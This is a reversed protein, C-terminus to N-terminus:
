RRRPLLPQSQRVPQNTPTNISAGRHMALEDASNVTLQERMVEAHRRAQAEFMAARNAAVQNVAANALNPNIGARNLGERGAAILVERLVPRQQGAVYQRVFTEEEVFIAIQAHLEAVLMTARQYGQPSFNASLALLMRETHNLRNSLDRYGASATYPAIEGRLRQISSNLMFLEHQIEQANLGLTMPSFSFVVDSETIETEPSRHMVPFQMPMRHEAVFRLTEDRVYQQLEALTIVGRNRKDAGGLMGQVLFYSFVGHGKSHFEWSVEGPRCSSFRFFGQRQIDSNAGHGFDDVAEIHVGRAISRAVGDRNEAETASDLANRCADIFFLKIDAESVDLMEELLSRRILGEVTTFRRAEQDYVVKADALCLFDAPQGDISLSIGHGSFAVLIRDGKKVNGLMTRLAAEMNGATPENNGGAGSYLLRIDEARCFRAQVLADGLAKIDNVTYNLNTFQVSAITDTSQEAPLYRTVGVLLVHSRPHTLEVNAMPLGEREPSAQASSFDPEVNVGRPNSLDAQLEGRQGYAVGAFGWFLVLSIILTLKTIRHTM